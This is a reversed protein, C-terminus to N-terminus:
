RIIWCFKILSQQMARTSDLYVYVPGVKDALHKAFRGCCARSLIHDLDLSCVAWAMESNGLNVPAKLLIALWKTELPSGIQHTGQEGSFGYPLMMFKIKGSIMLLTIDLFAPCLGHYFEVKMCKLIASVSGVSQFHQEM